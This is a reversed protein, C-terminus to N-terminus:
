NVDEFDVYEGADGLSFKKKDKPPVYDVHTKGNDKQHKAREKEREQQANAANGFDNFAQGFPNQGMKGGMMKELKRKLLFPVLYKFVMRFLFILVIVWFLFGLIADM